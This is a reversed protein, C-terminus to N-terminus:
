EIKQNNREVECNAYRTAGEIYRHLAALYESFALGTKELANNYADIQANFRDTAAIGCRSINTKENMCSPLQPKVPPDITVRPPPTPATCDAPTATEQAFAPGALLSAMAAAIFAACKM